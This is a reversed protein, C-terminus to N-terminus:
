NFLSGTHILKLITKKLIFLINGQEIESLPFWQIDTKEKLTPQNTKSQNVYFLHLDIESPFEIFWLYAYKGTKTKEIVPLIKNLSDTLYRNLHLFSFTTEEHFERLATEQPAEGLESGGVFGSWKKNSKELGLLFSVKGNIFTYPIIGAAFTM